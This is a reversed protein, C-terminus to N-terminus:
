EKFRSLSLNLGSQFNAWRFNTNEFFVASAMEVNMRFEALAFFVKSEFHSLVASFNQKFVARQYNLPDSTTTHNLDIDNNYHQRSKIFSDALQSSKEHALKKVLNTSANVSTLDFSAKNEQNIKQNHTTEASIVFQPYAFLCVLGYLLITFLSTHLLNKM